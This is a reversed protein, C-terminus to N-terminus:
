GTSRVPWLVAIAGGVLGMLLDLMTDDLGAQAATWGLRDGTWEAFEWVVAALATLALLLVRELWPEPRSALGAAVVERLVGRGGVVIAAGGAAHMPVDLWPFVAYAGVAKSLVVHLALVGVAPFLARGSAPAFSM